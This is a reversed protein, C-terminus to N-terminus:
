IRDNPFAMVSQINDTRLALAILRDLGVAVGACKPLGHQMAVLLKEDHKVAKYGLRDRMRSEDNMRSQMTDADTLEYYGNAIEVGDIILEFRDAVTGQDTERVEALACMEAPFDVVIMRGKNQNHLTFAYLFNLSDVKSNIQSLGTDKAAAHIEPEVAEFVNIGVGELLLQEFTITTYQNVGLVQDVLVSVEKHLEASDYGVRYWELMLFEPNHWPGSEGKRFVPSIQYCSSLGAALLRKMFYEPSTQLFHEPGVAFSEINVDTVTRTGLVPTHVEILGRENFFERIRWVIESRQTLLETTASPHWLENTM